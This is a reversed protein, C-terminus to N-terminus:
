ARPCARHHRGHVPPDPGRRRTARRGRARRRAAGRDGGRVPRRDRAAVPRAATRSATPRRACRRRSTPRMSWPWPAALRRPRLADRRRPLPLQRQGARLGLKLAAFMTELYEPRNTLDIAVTDGPRVGQQGCGRRSGRPATTSSAGPSSARGRLDIAERDPVEHAIRAWVTPSTGAPWRGLPYPSGVSQDWTSSPGIEAGEALPHEGRGVVGRTGRGIPPPPGLDRLPGPGQGLCRWGATSVRSSRTTSAPRRRGARRGSPRRRGRGARPPGSPVPPVVAQTAASAPRVLRVSDNRPRTTGSVIAAM